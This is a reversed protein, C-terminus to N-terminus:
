VGRVIFGCCSLIKVQEVVWECSLTEPLEQGDIVAVLHVVLPERELLDEVRYPVMDLVAFIYEGNENVSCSGSGEGLCKGLFVDSNKSGYGLTLVKEGERFNECQHL